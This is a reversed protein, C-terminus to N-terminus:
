GRPVRDGRLHLAELGACGGICGHKWLGSRFRRDNRLDFLGLGLDALMDNTGSAAATSWLAMLLVEATISALDYGEAEL